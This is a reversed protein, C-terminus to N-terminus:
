TTRKMRWWLYSGLLIGFILIMKKGFEMMTEPEEIEDPHVLGLKRIRIFEDCLSKYDFVHTRHCDESNCGELTNYKLCFGWEGEACLFPYKQALEEFYNEILHDDYRHDNPCREGLKCGSVTNYYFCAKKQESFLVKNMKCDFTGPPLPGSNYHGYGGIPGANFSSSDYMMNMGSSRLKQKIGHPNELNLTDSISRWMEEKIEEIARDKIDIKVLSISREKKIEEYEKEGYLTKILDRLTYNVHKLPPLWIKLMCKPCSNATEFNSSMLIVEHKQKVEGQEILKHICYQCYTHNCLLTVPENFIEKCIECTLLDKVKDVLDEDEQSRTSITTKKVEAIKEM